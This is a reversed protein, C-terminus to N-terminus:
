RQRPATHRDDPRGALRQRAFEKRERRLGERGADGRVASVRETRELRDRGAHSEGQLQLLQRRHDCMSQREDAVCRMADMRQGALARIEAEAVGLRERGHQASATRYSVDARRQQELAECATARRGDERHLRGGVPKGPQKALARLIM